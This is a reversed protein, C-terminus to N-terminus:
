WPKALQFMQLKIMEVTYKLIGVIDVQAKVFNTYKIELDLEKKPKYQIYSLRVRLKVLSEDIALDQKMTYTHMYKTQLYTIVPRLKKLKDSRDTFEDDSYHLFRSILKLQQYSMVEAYIPTELIKRSTLYMKITPKGVQGM